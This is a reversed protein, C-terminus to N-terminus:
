EMRKQYVLAIASEQSRSTVPQETRYVERVVTYPRRKSESFISALYIGQVGLILTLLGGFFWISLILSTYGSVSVGGVAYRFLFYLIVAAAMGSLTLGLYFIVYLLKTSSTALHKVLYEARVRLSYTSPSRSLKKVPLGVQKFGAASLLQDMLFDRDRHRALARVYNRKMLRATIHNRPIDDDSLMKVLWYYFEGTLKEIPGGRRREQFGYVVDCDGKLLREHFQTLLEPEEDLDSDILLVLDGTAYALGTMMAKHHGFNRALDVVTVRPDSQHLALALDLSDDPSGDNVLIMEIEYGLPEAAAFARRYFEDITGASKYLSAVISLKV